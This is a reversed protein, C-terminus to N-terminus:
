IKLVQFHVSDLRIQQLRTFITARRRQIVSFRVGQCVRAFLLRRGNLVRISFYAITTTRLQLTLM